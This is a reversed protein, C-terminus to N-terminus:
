VFNINSECSEMIRGKYFFKTIAGNLRLIKKHGPSCFHAVFKKRERLVYNMSYPFCRFGRLLTRVM